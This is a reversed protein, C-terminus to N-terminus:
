AAEAMAAALKRKGRQAANDVRKYTCGLEEAIEEYSLGDARGLIVRRELESMEHSVARALVSVAGRQVVAELPDVAQSDAVIEELTPDSADDAGLMPTALSMADNLPAHRGRAAAKVATIVQRRVCLEAFNRFGSGADARYDRVAKMLGYLAEQYLDQEEGGKLYYPNAIKRLTLRYREALEAFARQDGGRARLVLELDSM